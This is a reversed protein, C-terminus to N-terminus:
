RWDSSTCDHWPYPGCSFKPLSMRVKIPLQLRAAAVAATAARLRNNYTLENSLAMIPACMRHQSKLTVVAQPHKDSLTKFLSEGLGGEQMGGAILM